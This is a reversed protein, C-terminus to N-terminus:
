FFCSHPSLHLFDSNKYKIFNQELGQINTKKESEQTLIIYINEKKPQQSVKIWQLSFYPMLSIM